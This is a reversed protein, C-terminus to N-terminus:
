HRPGVTVSQGDLGWERPVLFVYRARGPDESELVPPAPQWRLYGHPEGTIAGSEDRRYVADFTTGGDSSSSTGPPALSFTGELVIRCAYESGSPVPPTALRAGTLDLPARLLEKSPM